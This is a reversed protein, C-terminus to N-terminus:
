MTDYCSLLLILIQFPDSALLLPRIQMSHRLLYVSWGLWSLKHRSLSGVAAICFRWLKLWVASALSVPQHLYCKYLACIKPNRRSYPPVDGPGSQLGPSQEFGVFFLNKRSHGHVTSEPTHYWTTEYFNISPKSFRLAEMKLALFSTMSALLSLKVRRAQMCSKSKSGSSPPRYTGRLRRWQRTPACYEKGPRLSLM